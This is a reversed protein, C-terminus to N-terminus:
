HLICWCRLDRIYLSYTYMHVIRHWTFSRTGPAAIYMVRLVFFVLLLSQQSLPVHAVYVRHAAVSPGHTHTHTHWHRPHAVPVHHSLPSLPALTFSCNEVARPLGNFCICLYPGLSACHDPGESNPNLQTPTQSCLFAVLLAPCGCPCGRPSLTADSLPRNNCRGIVHKTSRSTPVPQDVPTGCTNRRQESTNRRVWIVLLIKGRSRRM